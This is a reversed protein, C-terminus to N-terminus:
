KWAHWIWLDHSAVAKLILSPHKHRSTFQGKLTTPCNRWPWHM